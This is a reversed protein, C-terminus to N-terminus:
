DNSFTGHIVGICWVQRFVEAVRAASGRGNMCGGYESGRVDKEANEKVPLSMDVRGPIKADDIPADGKHTHKDRNCVLM